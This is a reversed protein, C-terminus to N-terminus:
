PHFGAIRRRLRELDDACPAPAYRLRAYLDAIERITDAHAPISRAARDAFALPGEWDRWVVNRSALRAAFRRWAAFAPDVRRRNRLVWATLGLLVVGCLVALAATMSRWDPEGLGLGALLDRQKQPNYGLVWQNWGNTVADLRYRLERIWTLDTRALFPLDEGAPVAAALNTNIRSPASIATPDVRVWGRGAIWAETWAHADYQRVVLYGDVPNVEGGQYGAVVRAPVGASRLAYVFAAAFHECFGRKTDFLFEDVLDPGLLPPNLTYILLQRSFFEQATALIATGDDGHRNRWEAGLARTRPNGGSPLALAENLAARTDNIGANTEPYARQTYRMRNRVIQRSIPQYDSTLASDPPLNGPMELAFLWFKGNPELTLDYDISPGSVPYPIEPYAGLTQRISWTRGDFAPMVPGRWYLRSQPPLEGKFEVRFAIADSQSLQAISGPSMTESIGSTATHRDQPLGWLPGQVRPFLVFLLLMFPMAQALMLAARRLQLLPEPRDDSAALMTATTILVTICSLMATPITQTFLFQGLVLFYCLLATVIADRAARLELLKLALFVVLLAIGPTRGIISRYQLFVAATGAIVLLVLLWKPPLHWQRWTLAARWAFAAGAAFALWPPIQQTLPLFAALAGALLWWAQRRSVPRNARAM